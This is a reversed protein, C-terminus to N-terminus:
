MNQMLSAKSTTEARNIKKEGLTNQKKTKFEVKVRNTAM